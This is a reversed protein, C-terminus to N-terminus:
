VRQSRMVSCLGDYSKRPESGALKGKADDIGRRPARRQTGSGRKGRRTAALGNRRGLDVDGDFTVGALKDAIEVDAAVVFVPRLDADIVVAGSKFFALQLDKMEEWDIVDTFLHTFLQLFQYWSM